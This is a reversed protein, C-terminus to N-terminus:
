KKELITEIKERLQPKLNKNNMVIRLMDKNNFALSLNAILVLTSNPTFENNALSLTSQYDNQLKKVKEYKSAFAEVSDKSSFDVDVDKKQKKTKAGTVPTDSRWVDDRGVSADSIQVIGRDEEGGPNEIMGDPLVFQYFENQDSATVVDGPFINNIGISELKGVFSFGNKKMWTRLKDEIDEGLDEACMDYFFKDWAKRFKNKFSNFSMTNKVEEKIIQKLSKITM